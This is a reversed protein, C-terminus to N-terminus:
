ARSSVIIGAIILLLGSLKTLNFTEGFLFISIIFICVYSASMFPYAFSIEFKTMASMWFISAIFASLLGSFIFPDILVHLFYAIKDEFAPPLLGFSGIRWKLVIQGYVTFFITCLIYFYGILKNKGKLGNM